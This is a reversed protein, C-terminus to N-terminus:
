SSEHVCKRNVYTGRERPHKGLPLIAPNYPSRLEVRGPIGLHVRVELTTVDRCVTARLEGRTNIVLLCEEKSKLGCCDNNQTFYREACSNNRASPLAAQIDDVGRPDSSSFRGM